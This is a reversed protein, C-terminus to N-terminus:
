ISFHRQRRKVEIESTEFYKISLLLGKVGAVKTGSLDKDEAPATPSAMRNSYTSLFIPERKLKSQVTHVGCNDGVNNKHGLHQNKPSNIYGVAESTPHVM